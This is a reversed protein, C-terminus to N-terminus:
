WGARPSLVVTASSTSTQRTPFQESSARAPIRSDSAPISHTSTGATYPSSPGRQPNSTTPASSYYSPKQYQPQPAPSRYQQPQTPTSTPYTQYVPSHPAPYAARPQVQDAMRQLVRVDSLLHRRRNELRAVEEQLRILHPDNQKSEVVIVNGEARVDFWGLQTLPVILDEPTIGVPTINVLLDGGVSRAAEQLLSLERLFLRLSRPNVPASPIPATFQESVSETYVPAGDVSLPQQPSTSYPQSPTMAAKVPYELDHMPDIPQPAPPVRGALPQLPQSHPSIAQAQGVGRDGVVKYSTGTLDIVPVDGACAIGLAALWVTGAAIFTRM